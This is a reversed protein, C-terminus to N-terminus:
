PHRNYPRIPPPIRAILCLAAANGPNASAIITAAHEASLPGFSAPPVTPPTIAPAAIPLAM